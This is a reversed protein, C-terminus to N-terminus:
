EEVLVPVGEDKFESLDDEVVKLRKRILTIDAEIKSMWGYAIRNTEVYGLRLPEIFYGDNEPNSSIVVKDTKANRTELLIEVCEGGYLFAADLEVSMNSTLTATHRKEGNIFTVIHRFFNDKPIGNFAVTLSENETVTIAGIDFRGIRGDIMLAIEM